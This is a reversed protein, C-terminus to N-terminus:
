NEDASSAPARSLTRLNEIEQEVSGKTRAGIHRCDVRGDVIFLTTPGVVVDFHEKVTEVWDPGYVAYLAIDDPPEPFLDEFWERVADCPECDERWVYVIARPHFNVLGAVWDGPVATFPDPVSSVEEDFEEVHTLFVLLQPVDEREFRGQEELTQWRALLAANGQVQEVFQDAVDVAEAIADVDGDVERLEVEYEEVASRFEDTLVFSEAGAQEIVGRERLRSVMGEPDM